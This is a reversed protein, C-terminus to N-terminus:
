YARITRSSKQYIASMEFILRELTEEGSFGPLLGKLRADADSIMKMCLAVENFNTGRASDFLRSQSYPKEQALNPRDPFCALVEGGFPPQTNRADICILAQWILSLRRSLMPLVNRFAVEEAKSPGSLLIRLQTVAQSTKGAIVADLMQFVNWERAPVVLQLVDSERIEKNNGAYIALKEIEEVAQSASSGVMELLTTVALPSMQKEFKVAEARIIDQVQNGKLEFKAVYGGAQKIIAEWEKDIRSLRSVTEYDGQDDDALLVLAATAPLHDWQLSSAKKPDCSLINRVIVMRREGLFPSTSAESLWDLPPSNGEFFNVDFDRPDLQFAEYIESLTRRRLVSEGAGLYFIRYKQFDISTKAM